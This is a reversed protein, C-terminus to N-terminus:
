LRGGSSETTISNMAAKVQGLMAGREMYLKGNIERSGTDVIATVIRETMDRMGRLLQDEQGSTRVNEPKGTGNWVTSMGPPLAGGNDYARPRPLRAHGGAAVQGGDAYWHPTRSLWKSYAEIPSNHYRAKIYRGGAVSQLYPDSTKPIGYGGWTSDLFQFMGYATSVKNKVANQYGSEGMILANAADWQPGVWGFMNAFVSQVIAKNAARDGSVGGVPGITIPPPAVYKPLSPPAPFGMVTRANVSSQYGVGAGSFLYNIGAGDVQGGQAYKPLQRKQVAQMFGPGYHDVSDVPMMWERSSAWILQDDARPAGAGPIQGGAAFAHSANPSISGIHGGFKDDYARNLEDFNASAVATMSFKWDPPIEGLKKLLNSAQDTTLGFKDATQQILANYGAATPGYQKNIADALSFLQGLNRRGAETTIDLSRSTNAVADNLAQNATTLQDSAQKQQYQADRVAQHARQQAYSADAVGQQARIVARQAQEVGYSADKVQQQAAVVQQQASVVQQQASVVSKSGEVGRADAAAVDQKLNAGSQLAANLSNQASLLDIAAKVRDENEATVPGSALARANSGNIQLNGAATQADFLRVRASAESTFQDDLQQHMAKLDRVAQQRAENLSVQADREQRQAEVVSRQADVYSRQATEVGHQADAVGRQADALSRAATEEGHQADAISRSASALGHSATSVSNRAQAVQKDAQSFTEDIAAGANAAGLTAQAFKLQVDQLGASADGSAAAVGELGFIAAQQSIGFMLGANAAADLGAKDHTLAAAHDRLSGSSQDAITKQDKFKGILDQLHNLLEQAAQGTDNLGSDVQSGGAVTTYRHNADIVKQIKAALSDYAGGGATIAGTLDKQSIGFQRASDAANKFEQNSQIAGIVAANVAGNSAQLAGAVGDMAGALEQASDSSSGMTGSLLVFGVTAAALAIGVPGALSEAVAATGVSATAARAGFGQMSIGAATAKAAGSEMAVGMTLIRASLAEIGATVVGALKFAGWTALAATGVGGLLPALPEIVQAVVTLIEAVATLSATLIPIAGSALGAAVQTVGSIAVSIDQGSAAWVQALDNVLSIGLTLVSSLIQGFSQVSAGYAASNQGLSALSTGVTTGLQGALQELSHFVPLSHEMASTAGPMVNTAFLSVGNTLARLDPGAASFARQMQPQLAEFTHGIQNGSAVLQPVLQGTATKTDAVVNSWLTKYTQQVQQNSAQATAAVGIFASGLGGLIAAGALPSAAAIGATMLTFRNTFSDLAKDSEDTKVNVTATAEKGDLRSLRAELRDVADAATLFTKSARDLAVVSFSLDSM